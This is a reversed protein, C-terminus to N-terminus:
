RQKIGQMLLEIIQHTAIGAQERMYERSGSEFYFRKKCGLLVCKRRIGNVAIIEAIMSGLGDTYGEELTAILSSKAELDEIIKEDIRGKWSYVDIIQLTNCIKNEIYEINEMIQHIIIGSTILTINGEKIIRYGKEIDITERSIKEYGGKEIRVYKPGNEEVCYKAFEKTIAPDSSNLTRINPITRIAAIDQLGHHTAGDTSYTFGAGVSIINVDSNMAAIDITIQDLVRLSVFPTIGYIFVKKGTKALGAAVGVMNQESIGVNIYRKPCKEELQRLAFAGHDASLFFIREDKITQKVVENFFADRMDEM